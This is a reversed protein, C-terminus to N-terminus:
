RNGEEKKGEPGIRIINDWGEDYTPENFMQDRPPFQTRQRRVAYPTDIFICAAKGKYASRLEKRRKPDDYIGDVVVDGRERSVASIIRDYSLVNDFHIVRCSYRKSYTTKGARSWGCILTLM